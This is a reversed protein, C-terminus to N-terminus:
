PHPSFVVTNGAALMGISNNIITETPNTTPTISGIVGFASYEILTLGGDGSVASTTLDEIGPTKLAAVRNKILKDEYNGM